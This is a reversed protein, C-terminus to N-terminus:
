RVEYKFEKTERNRELSLTFSREVKLTEFLKIAETLDGLPKGNINMLIDGNRLGIKTYLSDPRIAFLRLGIAQGNKFYPVARAQQLLLPLNELSKDLEDSDVIFENEGITAVGGEMKANSVGPIDELLLTEDEGNRRIEVKDTMIKILVAEEFVKENKTFVDQDKTKSNEIIAYSDSGTSVYTGILTLPLKSVPKTEPKNNQVPAVNIAGFINRTVILDFNKPSNNLQTQEPLATTTTAITKDLFNSVQSDIIARVIIVGFILCGVILVIRLAQVIRAAADPDILLQLDLARLKDIFNM